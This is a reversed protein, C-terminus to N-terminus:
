LFSDCNVNEKQLFLFKEAQSDEEEEEEKKKKL